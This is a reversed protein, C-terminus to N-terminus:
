SAFLEWVEKPSSFIGNIKPLGKLTIRSKSIKKSPFYSKLSLQGIPVSPFLCTVKGNTPVLRGNAHLKGATTKLPARIEERGVFAQEVLFLM